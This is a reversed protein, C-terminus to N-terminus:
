DGWVVTTERVAQIEVARCLYRSHVENDDKGCARSHALIASSGAYALSWTLLARVTATLTRKM